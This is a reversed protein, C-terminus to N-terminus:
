GMVWGMVHSGQSQARQNSETYGKAISKAIRRHGLTITNSVVALLRSGGGFLFSARERPM